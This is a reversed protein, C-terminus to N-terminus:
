AVWIQRFQKEWVFTYVLSDQGEFTELPFHLFNSQTLLYGCKM